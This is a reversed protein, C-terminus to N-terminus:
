QTDKTVKVQTKLNQRSYLDDLRKSIEAKYGEMVMTLQQILASNGTRYAFTLKGTLDSSTTQLEELTKESLDPLFPHIM